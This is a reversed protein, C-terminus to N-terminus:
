YLSPDWEEPWKLGIGEVAGRLAEAEGPAWDHASTLHLVTNGTRDRVIVVTGSDHSVLIPVGDWLLKRRATGNGQDKLQPNLRVLLSFLGFRPTSLTM